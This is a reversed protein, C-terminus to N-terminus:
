DFSTLTLLLGQEDLKIRMAEKSVQFLQALEGLRRTTRLATKVLALPMLLEAAFVNAQREQVPISGCADHSLFHYGLEHGVSFRQATRTRDSNVEILWGSPRRQLRAELTRLVAREVIFGEARAIAEVDVPPTGVGGRRAVTRAVERCYGIRVDDMFTFLSM